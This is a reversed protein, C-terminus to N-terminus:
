AQGRVINAAQGYCNARNAFFKESMPAFLVMEQATDAEADLWAAIQERVDAVHAEIIPLMADAMEESLPKLDPGLTVDGARQLTPISARVLKERLDDTSM